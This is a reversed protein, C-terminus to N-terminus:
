QNSDNQPPPTQTLLADELEEKSFGFMYEEDKEHSVWIKAAEEASMSNWLNEREICEDLVKSGYEYEKKYEPSCHELIYDCIDLKSKSKLWKDALIRTEERFWKPERYAPNLHIRKM